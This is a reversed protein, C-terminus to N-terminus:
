RAPASSNDVPATVDRRGAWFIVAVAASVIVFALGLDGAVWKTYDTDTTLPHLDVADM